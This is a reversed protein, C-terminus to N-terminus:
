VQIRKGETKYLRVDWMVLDAIRINYTPMQQKSRYVYRGKVHQILFLHLLIRLNLTGKKINRRSLFLNLIFFVFISCPKQCALCEDMM